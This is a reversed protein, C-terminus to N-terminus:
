QRGCATPADFQVEVGDTYDSDSFKLDSIDVQAIAASARGFGAKSVGDDKENDWQPKRLIRGGRSPWVRVNLVVQNAGAIGCMPNWLMALRHRLETRADNSAKPGADVSQAGFNSLGTTRHTNAQAQMHSATKPPSAAAQALADLDLSPKAPTPKTKEAPKPPKVGNKDPPAKDAVKPEPPKPTPKPEPPKPTPVPKPEPKKQPVVEKQPVPVPLPPAPTPPVPKPQEEPAPIPQPTKVALKDVPSEAQQRSPLKAVLEVPVSAVIAPKPTNIWSIFLLAFLGVHLLISVVFSVPYRRM